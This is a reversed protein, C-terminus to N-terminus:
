KSRFSLGLESLSSMLLKLASPGMGHLAEVEERRLKKLQPLKTIGANVLARRAPAALGLKRWEGDLAAYADLNVKGDTV